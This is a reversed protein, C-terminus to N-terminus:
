KGNVYHKIIDLVGKLPIVVWDPRSNLEYGMEYIAKELLHYRLLFDVEKSYGVDLGYQHAVELYSDLFLNVLAAYYKEGVQFQEEKNLRIKSKKDFIVAYIAYQFSRFMGAVDKMPPQKVKRDRITAEPEGEFDLIFFDGDSLIVQGLHYDGHIRIRSSNLESSHFNLIRDKILSKYKLFENAYELADGKLKHINNELLHYRHDVHYILRNLLWAKYDTNFPKPVFRRTYKEKFIALHMEATRQGLKRVDQITQDGIAKALVKSLDAPKIPEYLPLSELKRTDVKNEALGAYFERVVELFYTWADGTNEIKEQMLGMTVEFAGKKWTFAGAFKPSNRFGAQESLFYTLEYDPNADRFLKRYIKLYYADNFVVTTNSQEANLVKSTVEDIRVQDFLKGREFILNGDLHLVSVETLINSFLFNRFRTLYLADVMLFKDGDATIEAIRANEEISDDLSARGITLQYNESHGTEFLVEIILLFYTNQNSRLPVVLETNYRRVAMNKAGFWRCSALYAPLIKALFDATFERSQDFENWNATKLKPIAM